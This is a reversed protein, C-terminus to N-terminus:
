KGSELLVTARNGPPLSIKVKGTMVGRLEEKEPNIIKSNLKMQSREQIAIRFMLQLDAKGKTHAFTLLNKEGDRKWDVDLKHGGFEVDHLSFYNLDKPMQPYIEVKHESAIPHVGVLGSIIAELYPGFSWLQM